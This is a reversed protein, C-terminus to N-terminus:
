PPPTNLLNIVGQVFENVTIQGDRNTDGNLCVSPPDQLTLIRSMKVIDDVKVLGDCNCDGACGCPPCAAGALAAVPTGVQASATSGVQPAGSDVGYKCSQLADSLELRESANLRESIQECAPATLGRLLTVDFGPGHVGGCGAAFFLVFAFRKM